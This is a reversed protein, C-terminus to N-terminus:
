VGNEDYSSLVFFTGVCGKILKKCLIIFVLTGFQYSFIEFETKLVSLFDNASGRFENFKEKYLGICDSEEKLRKVGSMGWVGFTRTLAYLSTREMVEYCGFGLGTWVCCYILVWLCHCEHPATSFNKTM